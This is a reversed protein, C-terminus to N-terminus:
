DLHLTKIFQNLIRNGSEDLHPHLARSLEFIRNQLNTTKFYYKSLLTSTKDNKLKHLFPAKKTEIVENGDIYLLGAYFPMEDIKLLDKPCAYYFKNPLCKCINKFYISSSDGLGFNYTEPNYIGGNRIYPRFPYKELIYEKKHNTFLHHKDTKKFDALFDSRSIKVEVEVAYNSTSVAFFDCEWNYMYANFLKYDYNHFHRRVAKLIDISKIESM